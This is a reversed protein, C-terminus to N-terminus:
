LYESQIRKLESEYVRWAIIAYQSHQDWKKMCGELRIRWEDESISIWTSQTQEMLDVIKMLEMYNEYPVKNYGKAFSNVDNENLVNMEVCFQYAEEQTLEQNLIDESELKQFKNPCIYRIALALDYQLIPSTPEYNFSTFIDNLGKRIKKLYIEYVDCILELTYDLDVLASSIRQPDAVSKQELKPILSMIFTKDFYCELKEKMCEIARNLPFLSHDDTEEYNMTIGIKSNLMYQLRDLYLSLTMNSYCEIGATKGLGSLKIFMMPKRFSKNKIASAVFELFKRDAVKRLGYKQTFDEYCIEFLEENSELPIRPIASQYTSSILKNVLKRSAKGKKSIMEYSRKLLRKILDSAPSPIKAVAQKQSAFKFEAFKTLEKNSKVENPVYPKRTKSKNQPISSISNGEQNKSENESDELLSDDQNMDKFAQRYGEAIGEERGLTKGSLFGKTKGRQYGAEYGHKWKNQSNESKKVDDEAENENEEDIAEGLNVFHSNRKNNDKGSKAKNMEESILQRIIKETSEPNKLDNEQMNQMGNLNLVVRTLIEGTSFHRKQSSKESRPSNSIESDSFESNESSKLVKRKMEILSELEALEKKKNEINKVLNKTTNKLNSGLKGTLLDQLLATSNQLNIPVSVRRSSKSPQNKNQFSSRPIPKNSLNKPTQTTNPDEEYRTTPKITKLSKDELNHISLQRKSSQTKNTNKSDPNLDKPEQNQFSKDLRDSPKDKSDPILFSKESKQSKKDEPDLSLRSSNEPNLRTKDKNADPNKVGKGKDSPDKIIQPNELPKEPDKFDATKENLKDKKDSALTKGEPIKEPIRLNELGRWQQNKIGVAKGQKETNGGTAKGTSKKEGLNGRGRANKEQNGIDSSEVDENKAGTIEENEYNEEDQWGKKVVDKESREISQDEYKKYLNGGENKENFGKDKDRVKERRKRDYEEDNEVITKLEEGTREYSPRELIAVLESFDPSLSRRNGSPWNNPTGEFSSSSKMGFFGIKRYVGDDDEDFGEGFDELDEPRIIKKITEFIDEDEEEESDVFDETQIEKDKKGVDKGKEKVVVTHVVVKVGMESDDKYEGMVNEKYKEKKEEEETQTEVDVFNEELMEDSKKVFLENMAKIEEQDLIEENDLKKKINDFTSNEQIEVNCLEQRWRAVALNYSSNLFVDGRKSSKKMREISLKRWMEQEEIYIRQMNQLKQKYFKVEDELSKSINEQKAISNKMEGITNKLQSITNKHQKETNEYTKDYDNTLKNVVQEYSEKLIYFYNHYYTFLKRLLRGRPKCEVFVQKTIEKECFLVASEYDEDNEHKNRMDNFWNLLNEAEKRSSPNISDIKELMEVTHDDFDPSRCLIQDNIITKPIPSQPTDFTTYQPETIKKLQPLDSPLFSLSSYSKPSKSDKIHSVDKSNRLKILPLHRKLDKRLIDNIREPPTSPISSKIINETSSKKAQKYRENMQRIKQEIQEALSNKKM